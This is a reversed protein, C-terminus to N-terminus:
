APLTGIASLKDWTQMVFSKFFATRQNQQFVQQLTDGFTEFSLVPKQSDIAVPQQQFFEILSLGAIRTLYAASIGQVAGGAVYTMANSKLFATVTQTSLEVLGLKLMFECLTAAIAKAQELSFQQQYIAGLDVILQGNVAGTALLDLAPLPNAFAAAAAIWQYQALIPLARDRRLSNLQAHIAHQLSIAQRQVSGCILTTKDRAITETLRELLPTIQATQAELRETVTDNAQQHIVKIPAPAAAIAVVNEAPLLGQVRERIKQLVDPRDAPLCQDQKNWVLLVKQGSATLDQLTQYEPETIDGTVLFLVLDAHRASQLNVSASISEAYTFLTPCEVWEVPTSAISGASELQQKLITKGTAKGGVLALDLTTRDLAPTLEGLQHQLSPLFSPTESLAQHEIERELQTLYAQTRAIAREVAARDIEIIPPTLDLPPVNKPRLLLAAAGVATLGLISWEGLEGVSHHLSDWAWLAVSLGIGGVLIPRRLQNVM